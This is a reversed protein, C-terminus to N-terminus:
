AFYRSIIISRITLHLFRKQFTKIKLNLNLNYSPVTSGCHLGYCLLSVAVEVVCLQIWWRKVVMATAKAKSTSLTHL